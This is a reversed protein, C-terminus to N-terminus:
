RKDREQNGIREARKEKKKWIFEDMAVADPYPNSLQPPLVLNDIPRIREVDVKRLSILRGHKEAERTARRRTTWEFHFTKIIEDEIQKGVHWSFHRSGKVKVGVRAEFTSLNSGM